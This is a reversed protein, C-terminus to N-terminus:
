VNAELILGTEDEWWSFKPMNLLRYTYSYNYTDFSKIELEALRYFNVNRKPQLGKKGTYKIKDGTRQKIIFYGEGYNNYIFQALKKRNSIYSLEPGTLVISLRSKYNYPHITRRRYQGISNYSSLTKPVRQICQIKIRDNYKWPSQVHRLKKRWRAEKEEKTVKHYIM